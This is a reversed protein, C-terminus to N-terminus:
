WLFRFHYAATARAPLTKENDAIEMLLKQVKDLDEKYAVGVMLDIRRIPFRTLTTVESKLLTKM